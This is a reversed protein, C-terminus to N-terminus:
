EDAVIQRRRSDCGRTIHPVDNHCSRLRGGGKILTAKDGWEDQLAEASSAIRRRGRGFATYRSVIM